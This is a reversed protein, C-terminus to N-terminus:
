KIETSSVLAAVEEGLRASMKDPQHSKFGRGGPGSGPAIGLKAVARFSNDSKYATSTGTVERIKTCIALLDIRTLAGTTSVVPIRCMQTM